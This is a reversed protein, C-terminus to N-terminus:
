YPLPQAARAIWPCVHSIANKKHIASVSAHENHVLRAVVPQSSKQVRVPKDHAIVIESWIGAVPQSDAPQDHRLLEPAPEPQADLSDQLASSARSSSAKRDRRRRLYDFWTSAPM